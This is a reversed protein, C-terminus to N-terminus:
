KSCICTDSYTCYIYVLLLKDLFSIKEIKLYINRVRRRSEKARPFIDASNVCVSSLSVPVPPFVVPCQM